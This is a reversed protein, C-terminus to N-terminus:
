TYNLGLSVSDSYLPNDLGDLMNTSITLEDADFAFSLGLDESV